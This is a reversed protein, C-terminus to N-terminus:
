VDQIYSVCLMGVDRGFDYLFGGLVLLLEVDSHYLSSSYARGEAEGKWTDRHEQM